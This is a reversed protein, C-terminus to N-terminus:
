GVSISSFYHPLDCISWETRTHQRLTLDIDVSLGCSGPKISGSAETTQLARQLLPPFPCLILCLARSPSLLKFNLLKMSVCTPPWPAESLKGTECSFFGLSQSTLHSAWPQLQLTTCKSDSCLTHSEQDRIWQPAELFFVCVFLCFVFLLCFVLCGFFLSGFFLIM